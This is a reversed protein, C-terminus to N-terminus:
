ETEETTPLSTEKGEGRNEIVNNKLFQMKYSFSYLVDNEVLNM